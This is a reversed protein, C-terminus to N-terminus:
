CTESAFDFIFPLSPWTGRGGSGHFAIDQRRYQDFAITPRAAARKSKKPSPAGRRERGKM